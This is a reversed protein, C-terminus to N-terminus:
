DSRPEPAAEVVARLFRAPNEPQVDAAAYLEAVLERAFVNFQENRYSEVLQPQIEAFSKIEPAEIAACHVVFCAQPTEVIDSTAGEELTYLADVAPQWRPRVGAETMLGWDGGNFANIGESYERAVEAFPKGERLKTLARQAKQLAHERPVPATLKRGTADEDGIPIDILFLHRKQEATRAACYQAYVKELARRTPEEVRNSVRRQLFASVLLDQRIRARDEALTLDRAALAEEYRAQRGGYETNVIERIRGDVFRELRELEQEGLDEEAIQRLLIGEAQHRVAQQARDVLAQVYQQPPLEGALDELEPRIWKLVAEVTLAEGNVFLVGVASDDEAASASQTRQIERRAAEITPEDRKNKGKEALKNPDRGWRQQHSMCGGLLAAVVLLIGGSSRLRTTSTM